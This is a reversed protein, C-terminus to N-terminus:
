TPHLNAHSSSPTPSTVPSGGCKCFYLLLLFYNLFKCVVDTYHLVQKPIPQLDNAATSAPTTLPYAVEVRIKLMANAELYHGVPLPTAVPGDLAGAVGVMKGDQQGDRLGLVDPSPCQHIPSKLHLVQQGLLLGSLDFKAIGCPDWPRSRGSFPNHITRKGSFKMKIFTVTM